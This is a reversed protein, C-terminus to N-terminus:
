HPIINHFQRASGPLKHLLMATHLEGRVTMTEPQTTHLRNWIGAITRAEKALAVARTWSSGDILLAARRIHEDRRWRREELDATRELAVLAARTLDPSASKGAAVVVRLRALTEPDVSNLMAWGTRDAHGTPTAHM